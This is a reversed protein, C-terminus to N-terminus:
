LYDNSRNYEGFYIIEAGRRVDVADNFDDFYGLHILKNNFGINAIWKEEVKHWHVGKVGSTNNKSLKENMMNQQATVFRLNYKRNNLRNGDIHDIQLDDSSGMIIQQMYVMKELKPNWAIAYGHSNVCWGLDFLKDYDDKDLIAVKDKIICECYEDYFIFEKPQMFAENRLCGCSLTKNNDLYTLPIKRHTHKDCSCECLVCKKNNIDECVDIVKWRGFERGIYSQQHNCTYSSKVYDSRAKENAGCKCRFGYYKRGKDKFESIITYDGLIDNIQIM